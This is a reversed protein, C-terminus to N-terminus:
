NGGNQFHVMIFGIIILSSIIGSITAAWERGKRESFFKPQKLKQKIQISENEYEKYRLLARRYTIQDKKIKEANEVLNLIDQLIGKEKKKIIDKALAEQRDKDHFREIIPTILSCIWDMLNPLAGVNYFKQAAALIKLNAMIYRYREPSSLDYIHPEILRADRCILFCAAHKDIIDDPYNDKRKEAVRELSTLYDKPNLVFYDEIIPSLCHISPNLDYLCREIEYVMGKQKLFGKIKDFLQTFESVDRNLDSSTLLWYHITGNNFLDIFNALGKKNLFLDALTNGLANMHFSMSRYRIPADPDLAISIKPLLRDWYGIGAGGEQSTKMVFSYREKIENNGLSREIWHTLESNEIITVAEQQEQMMRFALTKAFLFNKGDFELARAAKRIKIPQKVSLRQGDLWDLVEELSSRSKEDDALLGRLLDTIGSGLRDNSSILTAYSGNVVKAAIIDDEEKGRQPDFNRVHMALIVGLAYLDDKITGEGRGIPSAMARGVPEYIAPQNFSSPASLCEGLRIKKFNADNGDYLNTIRINGHTVDRQQLDKLSHTIPILLNEIIEDTRWGLALDTDDKYLREGLNDQYIYCYVSTGDPMIARGFEILKPLSANALKQYYETVNTRPTYLPNCLMTFFGSPNSESTGTAYAKVHETSHNPIDKQLDIYYQNNFTAFRGGRKQVPSSTKRDEVATKDNETSNSNDSM